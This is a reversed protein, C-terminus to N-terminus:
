LNPQDSRGALMVNEHRFSVGTDALNKKRWIVGWSLTKHKSKPALNFDPTIQKVGSANDGTKSSPLQQNLRKIQTKTNSTAANQLQGNILVSPTTPQRHNINIQSRARALYCRKCTVLIELQGTTHQSSM